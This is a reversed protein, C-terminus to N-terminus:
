KLLDANKKELLKNEDKLLVCDRWTPNSDAKCQLLKKLM